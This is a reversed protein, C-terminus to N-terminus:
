QEYEGEGLIVLIDEQDLVLYAAWRVTVATGSYPNFQVVSGPKVVKVKDGVSVVEGTPLKVASSDPLVLGGETVTKAVFQKLIVKTGHTWM